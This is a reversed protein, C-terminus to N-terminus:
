GGRPVAQYVLEMEYGQLQQSVVAGREEWEYTMGTSAACGVWRYLERRVLCGEGEVSGPICYPQAGIEHTRRAGAVARIKLVIGSDCFREGEMGPNAVCAGPAGDGRHPRCQADVECPSVQDQICGSIGGGLFGGIALLAPTFDGACM